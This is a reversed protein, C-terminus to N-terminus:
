TAGTLSAGAPASVVKDIGAVPGIVEGGAIEPEAVDLRDARRTRIAASGACPVSENSGSPAPGAAGNATVGAEQEAQLPM